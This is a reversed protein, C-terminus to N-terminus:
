YPYHQCVSPGYSTCGECVSSPDFCVVPWRTRDLTSEPHSGHGLPASGGGRGRGRLSRRRGRRSRGAHPASAGEVGLNSLRWTRPRTDSCAESRWHAHVIASAACGGSIKRGPPMPEGKARRGSGPAPVVVGAAGCLFRVKWHPQPAAGGRLPTWLSGAATGEPGPHPAAAGARSGRRLPLGLRCCQRERWGWWCGTPRLRRWM